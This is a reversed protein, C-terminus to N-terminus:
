VNRRFCHLIPWQVVRRESIIAFLVLIELPVSSWLEMQMSNRITFIVSYTIIKVRLQIPLLKTAITMMLALPIRVVGFKSIRFKAKHSRTVTDRLMGNSKAKSSSFWTHGNPLTIHLSKHGNWVVTEVDEDKVSATILKSLNRASTFGRFSRGDVLWTILVTTAICTKEM